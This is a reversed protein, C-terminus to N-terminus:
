RRGSRPAARPGTVPVHNRERPRYASPTLGTLARFDNVMHAQDFYGVEVAARAWDGGAATSILRQLRRIRSFRKPSLGVQAAFRRRLTGTTVGLRDSVDGIAAGRHLAAAAARIGPDPDLPLAARAALEVQLLQLAAQPTPAALLRDRVSTQGWLEDLAVVPEDLADIPGMFPYAGGPRFVVCITERQEARDIEVAAPTPPCFGAGPRRHTRGGAHWRLEDRDLNVVLQATGTPVTTERGPPLESAYWGLHAVFPALAPAPALRVSRPM